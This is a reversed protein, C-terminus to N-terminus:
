HKEILVKEKSGVSFVPKKFQDPKLISWWTRKKNGETKNSEEKRNM